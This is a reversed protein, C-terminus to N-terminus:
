DASEPLQGDVFLFLDCEGEDLDLRAVSAPEAPKGNEASFPKLVDDTYKVIEPPDVNFVTEKGAISPLLNGCIVNILEKVADYQQETTTEENNELGLMNGTLEPLAQTSVIMVLTGKFPGIFSVRAAVASDFDIQDREDEPFSFIFALKELVEEAVSYLTDKIQEKMM